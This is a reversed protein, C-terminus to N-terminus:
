FIAGTQVAEIVEELTDEAEQQLDMDITLYVAKGAEPETESITGMYEGSSNVRITQVGDTGRLVSEYTAEVGDKGILDSANYGNEEM